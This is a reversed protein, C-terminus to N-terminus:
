VVCNNQACLERYERLLHINLKRGAAFQKLGVVYSQVYNRTIGRDGIITDPFYPLLERSSWYTLSSAPVALERVVGSSAMLQPRQGPRAVHPQLWEFPQNLSCLYHEWRAVEAEPVYLTGRVVSKIREARIHEWLLPLRIGLRKAAAAPTVLEERSSKANTRCRMQFAAVADKTFRYGNDPAIRARIEGKQICRIFTPYSINLQHAIMEATPLRLLSKLYRAYPRTVYRVTGVKITYIKGRYAWAQVTKLPRGLFTALGTLTYARSDSLFMEGRKKIDERWTDRQSRNLEPPAHEYQWRLYFLRMLMLDPRKRYKFALYKELEEALADIYVRLYMVHADGGFFHAYGEERLESLLDPSCDLKECVEAASYGNSVM